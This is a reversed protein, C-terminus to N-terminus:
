QELLIACLIARPVSYPCYHMHHTNKMEYGAMAVAASFTFREFNTLKQLCFVFVGM